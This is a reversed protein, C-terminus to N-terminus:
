YCNSEFTRFDFLNKCTQHNHGPNGCIDCKQIGEEEEELFHTWGELRRVGSRLTTPPLVKRLKVEGPAKWKLVSGLPHVTEAYTQVLCELSYYHSCFSYPVQDLMNQVRLVALAHSCPMQDLEFERCNCTKGRLVVIVNKAGDIM